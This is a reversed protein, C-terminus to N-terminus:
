TSDRYKPLVSSFSAALAIIEGLIGPTGNLIGIPTYALLCLGNSMRFMQDVLEPPWGFKTHIVAHLGAHVFSNLPRWASGKFENLAVMLNRLSLIEELEELMQAALPINKAGQVPEPMM